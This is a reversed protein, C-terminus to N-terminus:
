IWTLIKVPALMETSVEIELEKNSEEQNIEAEKYGTMATGEEVHTQILLNSKSILDAPNKKSMLNEDSEKNEMVHKENLEPKEELTRILLEKSKM